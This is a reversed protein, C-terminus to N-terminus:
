SRREQEELFLESLRFCRRALERADNDGILAVGEESVEALYIKWAKTAVKEPDMRRRPKQQPQQQPQPPRAVQQQPSQPPSAPQEPKELKGTNETSSDFEEYAIQIIEEVM